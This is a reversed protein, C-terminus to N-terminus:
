THPCWRSGSAPRHALGYGTEVGKVQGQRHLGRSQDDSGARGPERHGASQALGTEVEDDDLLRVPDAVGPVTVIVTEVKVRHFLQGVQRPEVERLM